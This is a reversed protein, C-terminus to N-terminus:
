LDGEGQKQHELKTAASPNSGDTGFSSLNLSEAHVTEGRRWRTGPTPSSGVHGQPRYSRLSSPRGIGGVRSIKLKTASSPNSGEHTEGTLKSGM